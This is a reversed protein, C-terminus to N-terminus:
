GCVFMWYVCDDGFYKGFVFGWDYWKVDYVFLILGVVM